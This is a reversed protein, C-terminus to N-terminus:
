LYNFIDRTFVKEKHNELDKDFRNAIILQSNNLFKQLNSEVKLGMFMDEKISTDYIIIESNSNIDKIIDLIASQRHNDSNLKMALKYIGIIEVNKNSIISAIFGKRLRNSEIVADILPSPVDMLERSLQKSDKPLCYGGYGFSPNNYFDGIRTDLSIGKIINKSDLKSSLAYNDLENFFSVRLALYTNAFLKIAEAEDSHTFIKEIDNLESVEELMSLFEKSNDDTDGIVLRSPYLNDQLASGERLFEPSFYIREYSLKKKIKRTYGVPITSKLIITVKNNLSIIESILKDLQTTDFRGKNSDYDVSIAIIITDSTVFAIKKDTTGSIDLIKNRLYEEALNDKIPSIGKNLKQIKSDDIDFIKVSFKTSLLLGLTFGVYGCGIVTINKTM